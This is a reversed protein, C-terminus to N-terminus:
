LIGVNRPKDTFVPTSVYAISSTYRNHKKDFFLIKIVRLYYFFSAVTFFFLIYNIFFHSTEILASLVEFKIYFGGLPPIGSMSFIIFAFAFALYPDTDKLSAFNTLYITSRGMYLLLFWRFFSSLIYIALYHFTSSMGEQTYLALGVLRFGVHGRSSYVFFRKIYKETFAGIRGALISFLGCVIFLVFVYFSFVHLFTNFLKFLFFLVM